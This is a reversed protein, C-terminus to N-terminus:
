ISGSTSTACYGSRDTPTTGALGQRQAHRLVLGVEEVGLARRKAAETGRRVQM